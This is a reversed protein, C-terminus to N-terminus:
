DNVWPNPFPHGQGKELLDKLSALFAAWSMSYYRLDTVTDSWGSHRLQVHTRGDRHSVSFERCPM